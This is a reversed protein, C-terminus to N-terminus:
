QLMTFSNNKGIPNSTNEPTLQGPRMSAVLVFYLFPQFDQNEPTLQGPRM